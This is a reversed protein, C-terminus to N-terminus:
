KASHIAQLGISKGYAPSYGTDGILLIEQSSLNDEQQANVMYGIVFLLCSFFFKFNFQFSLFTM